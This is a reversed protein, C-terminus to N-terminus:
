KLWDVEEPDFGMKRLIERFQERLRQKFEGEDFGELDCKLHYKETRVVKGDRLIDVEWGLEEPKIEKM